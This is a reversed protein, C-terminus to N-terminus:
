ITIFDILKTVIKNVSNKEKNKEISYISLTIEDGIDVIGYCPPGGDRPFALSGPNMFCIGDYVKLLAAHTHGFLCINANKKRAAGILKELGSKVGYKHGHTLFIRAFGRRCVYESASTGFYDCNGQVSIFEVGPFDSEAELVDNANDGLHFLANASTEHKLLDKLKDHRGHTDSAVIIRFM